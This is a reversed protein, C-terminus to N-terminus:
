SVICDFKNFSSRFYIHTGLGYMKILMEFIFLGLFINEAYDKKTFLFSIILRKLYELTIFMCLFENLWPPMNYHEVAACLANLFVLLIVAWYFGQTKIMRRICFRLRREQRKCKIFKSKQKSKDSTPEAEM